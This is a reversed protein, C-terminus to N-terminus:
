FLILLLGVVALGAAFISWDGFDFGLLRDTAFM